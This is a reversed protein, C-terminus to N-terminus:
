QPRMLSPHILKPILVQPSFSQNSYQNEIPLIRICNYNESHFELRIGRLEQLLPFMREELRQTTARNVFVHKTWFLSTKTELSENYRDILYNATKRATTLKKGAFFFGAYLEEEEEESLFWETYNVIENLGIYEIEHPM